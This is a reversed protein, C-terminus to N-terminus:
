VRRFGGGEHGQGFLEPHVIQALIELSEVIRPGPRNFYQNGDALFIRGDRVARLRPWQPQQQLMRLEEATRDMNFGCPAIMIVDPDASALEIFNMRASHEGAVGFLNVAGAMAVLEPMWNGATMLPEIWEIIALRPRSDAQCARTKITAMRERLDDTLAVGRASAELADAVRQMDAFVDSLGYPALSVIRPRAGTWQAVAEEVERMSVACVECQSQTVIVDPALARLKEPDVRYVSLAERLIRKVRQDLEASSGHPDFKPETLVPLCTITPPYDCEHSRGVMASEFGLACVIETASPLLSIIKPM